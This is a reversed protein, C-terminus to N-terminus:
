MNEDKREERNIYTIVQKTGEHGIDIFGASKLTALVRDMTQKDADYYFMAMLEGFTTTGRAGVEMWVKSLIDAESSKGVGSFTLPMKKETMTLIKIGRELDEDTIVMSDSRSASLSICLKLIHAPRREMYGSLRSDRFPPNADQAYRWETFKDLFKPTIKFDGKMTHLKDLDMQLQEGLDQPFTPMIVTKGRIQEFVFIIRSTLGGGIADRPLSLQILDPTTAGLLNMWVGKIDDIGEHKTKYVWQDACDYWDTLNAMLERNNYGLFVTLEKSYVTLSAHIPGLTGEEPDVDAEGSFRLERILSERTTADAAVKVGTTDLFKRGPTMATTKRPGGSPGVLVVYLNPYFDLSGWRLCCKRQLAAAVVSIATWLRYPTPPESNETYELFGEIWDPLHRDSPM